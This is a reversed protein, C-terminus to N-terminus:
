IKDRRRQEEGRVKKKIKIDIINNIGENIKFVILFIEM